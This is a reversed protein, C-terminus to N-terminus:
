HSLPLSPSHSRDAGSESESSEIICLAPSCSEAKNPRPSHVWEWGEHKISSKNEKEYHADSHIVIHRGHSRTHTHTNTLWTHREHLLLVCDM